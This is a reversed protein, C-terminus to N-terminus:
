RLQVLRPLEVERPLAAVPGLQRLLERGVKAGHEGVRREGRELVLHALKDLHRQEVLEDRFEVLELLEVVEVHLQLVVLQPPRAVVEGFGLRPEVLGACLELCAGGVARRLAVGCFAVARGRGRGGRTPHVKQRQRRQRQARRRRRHPDLLRRALHGLQPEAAALEASLCVLKHALKARRLDRRMAATSRAEHPTHPRARAAPFNTVLKPPHALPLLLNGAAFPHPAPRVSPRPASNPRRRSLAALHPCSGVRLTTGKGDSPAGRRWRASEGDGM